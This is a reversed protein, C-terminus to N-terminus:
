SINKLTKVLSEILMEIHDIQVSENPAHANGLEEDAAGVLVLEANPFERVFDNAFPISGGVGIYATENEWITNFSNVIIIDLSCSTSTFGICERVKRM